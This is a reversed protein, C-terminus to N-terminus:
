CYRDLQQPRSTKGLVEPLAPRSTRRSRGLVLVNRYHRSWCMGLYLAHIILHGRSCGHLKTRKLHGGRALKLQFQDSQTHGQLRLIPSCLKSLLLHKNTVVFESCFNLKKPSHQQQPQNPKYDLINRAYKVGAIQNVLRMHQQCVEVGSIYMSFNTSLLQCDQHHEQQKTCWEVGEPQYLYIFAHKLNIHVYHLM